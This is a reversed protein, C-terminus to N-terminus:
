DVVQYESQVLGRHLTRTASHQLRVDKDLKGFLSIGEGILVPVTTLIIKRILGADLFAQVTKGGDIYLHEAGRGALAAVVEDPTGSMTEVSGGLDHPVVLERNTLVVVSKEYPWVGFTMVKDFTNRGMVVFDITEMLASFGGDDGDESPTGLWSVDGDSRAIYGDLSVACLVTTKM